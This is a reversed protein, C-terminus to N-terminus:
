PSQDNEPVSHRGKPIWPRNAARHEGMGLRYHADEGCRRCNNHIRRRFAPRVVAVAAVAADVISDVM